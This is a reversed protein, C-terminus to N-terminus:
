RRALIPTRGHFGIKKREPAMIFVVLIELRKILRVEASIPKTLPPSAMTLTPTEINKASIDPEATASTAAMPETSIGAMFFRLSEGSNDAANVEDDADIAIM